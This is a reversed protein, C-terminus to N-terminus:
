RDDDGWRRRPREEEDDERRRGGSRADDERYIQGKDDISPRRPRDDYDDDRDRRSRRDDYDDRDRRRRDDYDDRDDRRRRDDYDERDDRDRDDRHPQCYRRVSPMLMVLIVIAPYIMLAAYMVPFMVKSAQAQTTIQQRVNPNGIKPVERAVYQDIAPLVFVFTHVIMVVKLLLSIVGYVISVYRAWSKGMLLGIGSVILMLDFLLGFFTFTTQAAFHGPANEMLYIALATPDGPQAMKGMQPLLFVDLMRCMSWLLGLGGAIFHFVSITIVAGSGPRSV